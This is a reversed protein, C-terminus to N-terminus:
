LRQAVAETCLREKGSESTSLHLRMTEGCLQLGRVKTPVDVFLRLSNFFEARDGVENPCYVSIVRVVENKMICDTVAIRGSQDFFCDIVQAVAGTKRVLNCTGASRGVGASHHCWYDKKFYNILRQEEELSSIKTEQLCIIDIRERTIVDKLWQKRKQAVLSATNLTAIKM